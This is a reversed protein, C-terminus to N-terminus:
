FSFYKNNTVDSKFCRGLLHVGMFNFYLVDTSMTSAAPVCSNALVLLSVIHMSKADMLLAGVAFFQCSIVRAAFCLHNGSSVRQLSYTSSPPTLLKFSWTDAIRTSLIYRGVTVM